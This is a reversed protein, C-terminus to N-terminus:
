SNSPPILHAEGSDIAMLTGNPLQLRLTGDPNIGQAIGTYTRSGQEVTITAHHLADYGIFKDLLYSAGHHLWLYYNTRFTELLQELVYTPNFPHEAVQAMSTAIHAIDPPFTKQNVNLGIGVILSPCGNQDTLLQCLIGAVKRGDLWIDNPWKIKPTLNYHQLAQAVAVGAVLPMVTLASPDADPKLLISLALSTNPEAHWHRGQRGHGATQNKALVVTGHPLDIHEALWTNTSPLTEFTRLSYRLETTAM